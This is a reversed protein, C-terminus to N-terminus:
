KINTNNEQTLEVIALLRRNFKTKDHCEIRYSSITPTNNNTNLTDTDRKTIGVIIKTTSKMAFLYSCFTQTADISKM